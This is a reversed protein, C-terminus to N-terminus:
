MGGLLFATATSDTSIASIPTVAIWQPNTIGGVVCQWSKSGLTYVQGVTPNSPFDLAM